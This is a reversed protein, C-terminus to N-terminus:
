GDLAAVFDDDHVLPAHSLDARMLLQERL